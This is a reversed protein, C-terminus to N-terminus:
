QKKDKKLVSRKIKVATISRGTIESIEQDSHTPFLSTETTAWRFAKRIATLRIGERQAKYYIASMPRELKESIVHGPMYGAVERLFQVEYPEWLDAM